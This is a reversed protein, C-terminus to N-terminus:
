HICVIVYAIFKVALDKRQIHMNEHAAVYTMHAEEMGSPLYIHPKIIGIVMPVPLTDM